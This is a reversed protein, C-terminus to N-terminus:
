AAQEVALELEAPAPAREADRAALSRGLRSPRPIHIHSPERTAADAATARLADRAARCDTHNM